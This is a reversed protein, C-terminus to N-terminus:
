EGKLAKRLEELSEALRKIPARSSARAIDRLFEIQGTASAVERPTGARDGAARYAGEIAKRESASLQGSLASELLRV